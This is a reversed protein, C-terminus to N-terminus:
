KSRSRCSCNWHSKNSTGHTGNSKAGRSMECSKQPLVTKSTLVEFAEAVKKAFILPPEVSKFHIYMLRPNDFLWHNHLATVEIHRARLASIFPNIEEQLIVTEGLNLARGRSDVDEFSFLAALSLASRTKKGQIIPKLNNRIRTVTCVGNVIEASGGLINAFRSCLPGPMTSMTSM